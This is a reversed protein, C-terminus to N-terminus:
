YYTCHMNYFYVKLSLFFIDLWFFGTKTRGLSCYFIRCMLYNMRCKCTWTIQIVFKAGGGGWGMGPVLWFTAYNSRIKDGHTLDVSPFYWFLMVTKVTPILSHNFDMCFHLSCWLLKNNEWYVHLGASVREIGSGKFFGLDPCNIGCHLVTLVM